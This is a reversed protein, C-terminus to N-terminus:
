WAVAEVDEVTQAADILVCKAYETDFCTQVHTRVADAVALVTEAELTVFGSEAKWTCTYAADQTAKLAAGTILAQSAIVTAATALVVLPVRFAESPILSYFPKAALAPEHLVVAGQGLYNLLLAPLVLAFWTLKIPRRGFHGMDAYLAEGGTVVLFVGGLVHLPHVGSEAHLLFRIAHHPSIAALIGPHEVIRYVGLAAITVFWLLTVPGFASGVKATGHRQVAFLVLLVAVTIPVTLAPSANEQIGEVASLVSIAPTIIGDGYLLAAGFVGFAVMVVGTRTRYRGRREPFGVSLLALIGGEGRKDARMVFLIYKVSIILILSWIILSLLGFILLPRHPGDIGERMAGCAERFAYLPSTGIDGFVVGLAALCLLSLRSSAPSATTSM